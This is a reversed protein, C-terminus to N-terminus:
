KLAEVAAIRRGIWAMVPVAMSNGLARYRHSDTAPKGRFLIDTYGDPFGQLRECETPTLRRVSARRRTVVTGGQGATYGGTTDVARAIESERAHDKRATSNHSNVIFVTARADGQDFANLTPAPRGPEWTEDDRNSQARKAKVFPIFTDQRDRGSGFRNGQGASLAYALEPILDAARDADLRHGGSGPTGGAVPSAVQAGKERSPAPDGRLCAREFLVAAAGRWDGLCGVVFLRKRRQALGFYQADLVRWAFGYGLEALGGVFAGMARGRDASLVGPVNEWVVWRPRARGALRLFVIALGGRPDALGGRLGAISFSQCPTGGVLLNIPEDPWEEFRTLDGRNPVAPYHHDLVARCFPDIEAFCACEWGLPAWAVTAADIGSCVSAYRM